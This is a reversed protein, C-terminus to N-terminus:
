IVSPSNSSIGTKITELWTLLQEDSDNILGVIEKMEKGLIDLLKIVADYNDKKGKIILQNLM